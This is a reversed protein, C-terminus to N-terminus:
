PLWTATAFVTDQYSGAAVMQGAPLNGLIPYSTARVPNGNNVLLRGSAIVTGGTGDGWINGLAISNLYLNYQLKELPFGLNSMTRQLFNASSGTSLAITYDIQEAGGGTHQCTITATGNAQSAVSFDYTGFNVNIVTFNCDYAAAALRPALATALAIAVAALARTTGAIM